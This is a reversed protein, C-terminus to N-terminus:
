SNEKRASEYRTGLPYQEADLGEFFRALRGYPRMTGTLTDSSGSTTRHWTQTEGTDAYTNSHRAVETVQVVRLDNDWFKAGVTVPQNDASMYESM